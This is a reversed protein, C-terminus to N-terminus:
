SKPKFMQVFMKKVADYAMSALRQLLTNKERIQIMTESYKNLDPKRFLLPNGKYLSAQKELQTIQSRLQEEIKKIMKPAPPLQNEDFVFGASSGAQQGDDQQAKGSKMGDGKQEKGSEKVESVTEGIEVVEGSSEADALTEAIASRGQTDIVQSSDVSEKREPQSPAKELSSRKEPSSDAM